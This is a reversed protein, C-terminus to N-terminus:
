TMLNQMKRKLSNMAVSRIVSQKFHVETDRIIQTCDPLIIDPATVPWVEETLPGLPTQFPVQDLATM